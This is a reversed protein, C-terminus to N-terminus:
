LPILNNKPKTSYNLEIGEQDIVKFIVPSKEDKTLIFEFSTKEDNDPLGLKDALALFLPISYSGGNPLFEDILKISVVNNKSIDFGVYKDYFHGEISDHITKWNLKLPIQNPYDEIRRRLYDGKPLLHDKLVSAYLVDKCVKEGKERLWKAKEEVNPKAEYESLDAICDLGAVKQIEAETIAENKSEEKCGAMVVTLFAMLVTKKM